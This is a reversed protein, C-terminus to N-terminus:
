HVNQSLTGKEYDIFVNVTKTAHHVQIKEIKWPESVKLIKSLTNIFDDM